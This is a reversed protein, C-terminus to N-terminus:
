SIEMMGEYSDVDPSLSNVHVQLDQTSLGIMRGTIGQIMGESIILVAVLPVLSIGICMMAGFLSRRGLSRDTSTRHPLCLRIAYLFSSSFTM